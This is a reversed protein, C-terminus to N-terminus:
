RDLPKQIEVAIMGRLDGMKYGTAQDKPYAANIAKGLESSADVNGHCKLCVENNIVLPKYFTEGTASSKITYPPLPKQAAILAEWEQFLAKEEATARNSPNREKLSIRKLTYGGSADSVEKTLKIANASCFGLAAVPGHASMVNKLEGGLKQILASSLKEGTQVTSPNDQAYLAVSALLSLILLNSKM